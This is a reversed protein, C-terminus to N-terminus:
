PGLNVADDMLAGFTNRQLEDGGEAVDQLAADIVQERNSGGVYPPAAGCDDAAFGGFTTSSFLATRGRRARSQVIVILGLRGVALCPRAGAM